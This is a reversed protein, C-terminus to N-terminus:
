TASAKVASVYEAAFDISHREALMTFLDDIAALKSSPASGAAHVRLFVDALGADHRELDALVYKDPPYWRRELRYAFRLLRQFLLSLLHSSVEPEAAVRDVIDERQLWAEYREWNIDSEAMPAPGADWLAHAEGILSALTGDKDFLVRGTVFGHLWSEGSEACQRFRLRDLSAPRFLMEVHRGTAVDRFGRRWKRGAAEDIVAIIDIDSSPGIGEGRSRSGVWIAGLVSPMARLEDTLRAVLATDIAVDPHTSGAM